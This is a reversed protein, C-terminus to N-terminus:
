NMWHKDNPDRREDELSVYRGSADINVDKGQKRMYVTFKKAARRRKARYYANRVGYLRESLLFRLGRRPAWMLFAWGCVGACLAVMASFRHGSTLAGALYILVYIAAMYKAKLRLLFNFTLEEDPHLRAFALVLALVPPWLGAAVNSPGLDASHAFVTRSLVSALLGGGITATFFYEGLWLGGREDELASGFFWLSLAAFLFGIVDTTVLPYTLPQWLLKGTAHIPNLAFMSAVLMAASPMTVQLILLLFFFATATIVLRRTTGRFPPLGVVRSVRAMLYRNSGPFTHRGSDAGSRTREGHSDTKAFYGIRRQTRGM